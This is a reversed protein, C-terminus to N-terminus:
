SMKGVKEWLRDARVTWKGLGAPSEPFRLYHSRLAVGLTVGSVLAKMTAGSVKKGALAKIIGNLTSVIDGGHLAEGNLFKENFIIRKSFCYEIEENKAKVVKTLFARVLCFDAGQVRNYERNIEWLNEASVDGKKLARDLVGAAIDMMVMSSTVGEGCDPKTLCGADGCVIFGDAVLSYPPRRYPTTGKETRIVEFPDPSAVADLEPFISEVQKYSGVSGTGIIKETSDESFPAHWSKTSLWFNNIQPKAFKAYRLIVYFMDDDGLAFNEIGYGDPLARRAVASSGSCDAVVTAYVSKKGEETEYVAGAIKGNEFIFECFSAEYEIEAGAAVAREVMLAVYEHMHLGVTEARTNVKYKNSPSSFHNDTFEFAWAPDGKKVLPIDYVRLDTQSVHFIDMRTGLKEKSLREIMKVSYGKEAMKKALYAGSTAAGVILIDYRDM